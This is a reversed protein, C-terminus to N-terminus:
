WNRNTGELSVSVGFCHDVFAFFIPGELNAFYMPFFQLIPHWLLWLWEFKSVHQFLQQCFIKAHWHSLRTQCLCMAAAIEPILRSRQLAVAVADDVSFTRHLCFSQWQEGYCRTSDAFVLKLLTLGAIFLPMAADRLVRRATLCAAHPTRAAGCRIPVTPLHIVDPPREM